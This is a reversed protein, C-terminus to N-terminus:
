VARRPACSTIILFMNSVHAVRGMKNDLVPKILNSITQRRLHSALGHLADRIVANSSTLWLLVFVGFFMPWASFTIERAAENRM